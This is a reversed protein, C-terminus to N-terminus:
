VKRDAMELGALEGRIGKAGGIHGLELCVDQKVIRSM